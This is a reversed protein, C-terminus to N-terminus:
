GSNGHKRNDGIKNSRDDKRQQDIPSSEFVASISGPLLGANILRALRMMHEYWLSNDLLDKGLGCLTLENCSYLVLQPM